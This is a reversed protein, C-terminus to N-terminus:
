FYFIFINGLKTAQGNSLLLIELIFHKTAVLLTVCTLYLMKMFM